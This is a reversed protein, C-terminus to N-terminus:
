RFRMWHRGGRWFLFSCKKIRDFSFVLQLNVTFVRVTFVMTLEESVLRV